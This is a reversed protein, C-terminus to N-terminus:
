ISVIKKLEEKTWLVMERKRKDKVTYAALIENKLQDLARMSILLCRVRSHRLEERRRKAPPGPPLVYRTPIDNRSSLARGQKVLRGHPKQREVGRSHGHTPPVGLSQFLTLHGRIKM